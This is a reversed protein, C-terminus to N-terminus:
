RRELHQKYEVVLREVNEDMGSVFQGEWGYPINDDYKMQSFITDCPDRHLYIVNKLGDVKGESWHPDSILRNHIHFGWCREPNKIFFSQVYSPMGFYLELMMRLWHSGTRPYSVLRPFEPDEMIGKRNLMDTIDYM